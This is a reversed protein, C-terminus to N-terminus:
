NTQTNTLHPGVYGIYIKGSGHADDYYHMRANGASARSLRFHAKMAIKEDASVQAPVKFIREEGWRDMTVKSESTAHKDAGITGRGDQHKKLYDDVTGSFEDRTKVRVYNALANCIQVLNFAARGLQDRSDGRDVGDYKGTFMVAGAPDLNELVQRCSEPREWGDDEPTPADATEYDKAERLRERLWRNEANKKQLSEQYEAQEIEMDELVETAQIAEDELTEIRALQLRLMEAVQENKPPDATHRSRIVEQISFETIEQIGLLRQVLDLQNRLELLRETVIDLEDAGSKRVEKAPTAPAVVPVTKSKVTPQNPLKQGTPVAGDAENGPSAQNGISSILQETSARAFARRAHLLEEPERRLAAHKRATQGLMTSVRKPSSAGLSGTKLFRHRFSDGASRVDVGPFYTRLNWPAVAFHGMKTGFEQTADPTLAITQALGYVERAWKPLLDLFPAFLSQEESRSGAVFVLGHRDSDELLEILEDVRSVDWIQPEAMLPLAADYLDLRRMLSKAIRPVSVFGGRSNRVSINIWGESSAYIETTYRGTEAEEVLRCLLLEQSGDKLDEMTALASQSSSSQSNDALAIRKSELWYVFEERVAPICDNPTSVRAFTEYDQTRTHVDVRELIQAPTRGM